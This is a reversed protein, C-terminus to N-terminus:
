KGRARELTRLTARLKEVQYGSKKAAQQLQEVVEYRRQLAEPEGNLQALLVLWQLLTDFGEQNFWLVGQFHNVNLLQQADTDRLLMEVLKSAREGASGAFLQQQYTALKLATVTRAAAYDEAGVERIAGSIIRGLLWEDIWSRSQEPGDLAQVILWSYLGGWVAPNDEVDALVPQVAQPVGQDPLQLLADLKAKVIVARRKVDVPSVAVPADAAEVKATEGAAVTSLKGEAKVIPTVDATPAAGSEEGSEEAEPEATFAEIAELLTTFKQEVEDLLEADPTTRAEIVRKVMAVNVLERFPIRIPAVMLERLADDISPVGRGALYAALEGYRRTENDAVIRFDMLIMCQYGSLDAYLGNECLERCNRLYELGSRHERFICYLNGDMPLALGEGLTRQVLQRNDGNTKTSYAASVRIWGGTSNYANNYLVVTREDGVRNSYAFVNEDVGGGNAYFDYLLFNEVGAFLYRKRCLPFIEREHRQIFYMDPQEDYYARYYEMGYKEAYGEIQGHGFMPLGPMTIMMTTVGFYKDGKGFQEVATKEDPNNLFNVYRRLVETDFEITNKIVMRYKANEEDRLMNMFASNYVRHMGLTRVFYGELLWFAEALLLTDPAEVACRDVVERWFEIPMLQDFQERTMGHEARSPIAGGTGPEPFWLRQIHKKVLTMAADFRIIPFQRAVHLITQIMAERLAPNLYNLQATDNWPMSTGDNGHYIYRADGTYRDLRKFVVAADTRDYYHDEIFIGVRGDTSLDPGNFSYNPYPPYNLALFWDPQEIVWKGDIGVHNPVMDSALRIGRQWARERLVQCAAEGGLREAIQYDYLSYASAVADPNGMLQKVRQSATSREWLGILWLGTIGWQALQDLEEDPILDLRNIARQYKRSLQDLWVYANKALMVLNPMWERDPSFNETEFEQRDYYPVPTAGKGGPGGPGPVARYEEKLIDSATLLRYIDAGILSGWREVLYRLQGELSHPSARVPELLIDLISVGGPFQRDGPDTRATGEFFARLETTIRNYATQQRLADDGFLELFPAYAPNSNELWLFLLEELTIERTPRNEYATSLYQGTDQARQYVPQPPFEDVFRRLTNDVEPGLQDRLRNLANQMLAPHRECYQRFIYHMVGQILAIAYIQSAQVIQNPLNGIDRRDNMQNAFSRASQFNPIFTKGLYTFLASEIQYRDRAPRAVHFGQLKENM